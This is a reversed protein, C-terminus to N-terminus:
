PKGGSVKFIIPFTLPKQSQQLPFFSTVLEPPSISAPLNQEKQVM